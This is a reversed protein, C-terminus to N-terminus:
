PLVSKLFAELDQMEKACASHAMGPYTEFEVSHGQSTLRDAMIKGLPYQVVNDASGHAILVKLSKTPLDKLYEESPLWGSFGVAGALAGEYRLSSLIALLSGQSFGGVVIRDSPIGSAEMRKIADHIKKVSDNLGNLPEQPATSPTIPIDHIDFWSSSPGHNCTVFNTPADPFEWKIHNLHAFEDRLSSWGAGSDGLGHLWIVGAQQCTQAMALWQLFQM